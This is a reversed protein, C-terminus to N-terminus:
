EAAALEPSPSLTMGLAAARRSLYRLTQERYRAEYAASGEDVYVKGHKLANYFIKALKHAVATIAKPAGLKARMRRAYAGLACEARLLPQAALRFWQAARNSSKRTRSKGRNQRGGTKHNGPCLCLWSAFQKETACASMDRGVESVIGLLVHPGFGRIETLDVGLMQFLDLRLDFKPENNSLKRTRRRRPLTQGQSRDSFTALQAEIREDVEALKQHHYRYLDVAQKLTFLHEDRWNGELALAIAAEDHGCRENRLAALKQPDREGELIAQLIAMGTVGTIDSVVEALKLNMQELAKQMHQIHQGAYRVLMERQRMYSRLVGIQEEPHFSGQL